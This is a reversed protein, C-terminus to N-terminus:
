GLVVPNEEFRDLLTVGVASHCLQGRVVRLHGRQQSAEEPLGLLTVAVPAVAATSRRGRGHAVLLLGLVRGVDAAPRGTGPAEDPGVLASRSGEAGVPQRRARVGRRDGGPYAGRRGPKHARGCSRREVARRLATLQLHHPKGSFSFGNVVIGQAGAAVFADIAAGDAGAYTAVIDVRPLSHTTM